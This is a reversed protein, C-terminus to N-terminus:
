YFQWLLLNLFVQLRNYALFKKGLSEHAFYKLYIRAKINFLLRRSFLLTRCHRSKWFNRALISLVKKNQSFSQASFEHEYYQSTKLYNLLHENCWLCFSTNNKTSFQYICFKEHTALDTLIYSGLFNPCIMLM